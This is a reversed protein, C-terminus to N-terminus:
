QLQLLHKASNFLQMLVPSMLATSLGWDVLRGVIAATFMDLWKSRKQKRAERKLEDISDQLDDLKAEVGNDNAIDILTQFSADIARDIQVLEDPTFKTDESKFDQFDDKLTDDWPDIAKVEKELVDVWSTIKGLLRPWGGICGEFEENANNNGPTRYIWFDVEENKTPEIHFYYGSEKHTLVTSTDSGSMRPKVETWEFDLPELGRGILLQAIEARQSKMLVSM